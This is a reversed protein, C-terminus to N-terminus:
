KMINNMGFIKMNWATPGNQKNTIRYSETDHVNANYYLHLAMAVAAMETDEAKPQPAAVTPAQQVAAPAHNVPAKPTAPKQYTNKENFMLGFGKMVFVLLILIVFVFGIGLATMVLMDGWSAIKELIIINM